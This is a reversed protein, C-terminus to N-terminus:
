HISLSVHRLILLNSPWSKPYVCHQDGHRLTGVSARTLRLNDGGVCGISM